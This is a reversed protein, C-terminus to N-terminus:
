LDSVGACSGANRHEVAFRALLLGWQKSRELREHRHPARTVDRSATPFDGIPNTSQPDHHRCRVVRAVPPPGEGAEGTRSAPSGALRRTEVVPRRPDLPRPRLSPLSLATVFSHKQLFTINSIVNSNPHALTVQHLPLPAAHFALVRSQVYKQLIQQCPRPGDREREQKM